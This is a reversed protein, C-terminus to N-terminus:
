FGQRLVVVNLAVVAMTVAGAAVATVPRNVLPGMVSRRSTLMILPVLAFPLGIALAVQSLILVQVPGAGTALLVVAPVVAVLRRALLPVRRRPFGDMIVQGAYTGVSSSALGSALLALGFVVGAGRGLTSALGAQIGPLFEATGRPLAAAVVMMAMNILAAAGLALGIDIRSARVALRSGSRQASGDTLASHLYVVHPMVTAGVIGAALLVSGSGSGLALLASSVVATILAAILLPV